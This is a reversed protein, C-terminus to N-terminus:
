SLTHWHCIKSKVLIGEMNDDDDDGGANDDGDGDNDDGGDDDNDSDDYDYNDEPFTVILARANSFFM